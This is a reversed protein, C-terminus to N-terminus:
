QDFHPNKINVFGRLTHIFLQSQGELDEDGDLVLLAQVTSNLQNLAILSQLTKTQEQRTGLLRARSRAFECLQEFAVYYTCQLTHFFMSVETNHVYVSILPNLSPLACPELPLLGSSTITAVFYEAYSRYVINLLLPPLHSTAQLCVSSPSLSFLLLFLANACKPPPM